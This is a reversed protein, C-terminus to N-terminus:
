WGWRDCQRVYDALAQGVLVSWVVILWPSLLAGLGPLLVMVLGTISTRLAARM